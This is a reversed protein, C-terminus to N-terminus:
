RVRDPIALHQQPDDPSAYRVGEIGLLSLKIKSGGTYWGLDGNSRVVRHCPIIIPIPNRGLANGVARSAKPNGIEGAIRGYSTVRGYSVQSTADLVHQTFPTIGYLDVNLDFANRSGSFYEGLQEVAPAISSQREAALIRRSEMEHIAAYADHHTLFSVECVGSETVAILIPGVPTDMFGYDADRMGLARATDPRSEPMERGLHGTAEDFVLECREFSQLMRMCYGCTAVHAHVWTADTESLDGLVLAPMAEEAIDCPDVKPNRALEELGIVPSATQLPHHDAPSSQTMPKDTEPYLTTSPVPRRAHGNRSFLDHESTRAAM